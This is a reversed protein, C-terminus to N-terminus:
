TSIAELVLGPRVRKTSFALAAAVFSTIGAWLFLSGTYGLGHITLPGTASAVVFGGSAGTGYTLAMASGRVRTPFVEAIFGLAAGMQGIAFFYYMGYVLGIEILSTTGLGLFLFGAIGGLALWLASMERRGVRNGLVAATLYGVLGLSQAIATVEFVDGQSYNLGIIITPIWTILGAAGYNYIFQWLCILITNRRLDREFLQIYEFKKARKADIRAVIGDTSADLQAGQHVRKLAEYRPTEEGWLRGMVIAAAPVIGCVFSWRWGIAPLLVASLGSALLFGAPYGSQIFGNWFGRVKPPVVEAVMTQSADSEGAGGLGIIGRYINLSLLGTAAGTLASGVATFLLTVNFIRKRGFRDLLPGYMFSGITGIITSITFLTAIGDLSIGLSKQVTPYMFTFLGADLDVLLFGAWATLIVLKAQRDLGKFPNEWGSNGQPAAESVLVGGPASDGPYATEHIDEGDMAPERM